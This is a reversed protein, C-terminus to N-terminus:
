CIKSYKKINIVKRKYMKNTDTHKRVNIIIKILVLDLETSIIKLAQKCM